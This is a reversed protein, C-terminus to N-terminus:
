PQGGAEHGPRDGAVEVEQADVQVRLGPLRVLRDLGEPPERDALRHHDLLRERQLARRPLQVPEDVPRLRVGGAPDTEVPAPRGRFQPPRLLEPVGDQHLPELQKLPPGGCGPLSRPTTPGFPTPGSTTGPRSPSWTSFSWARLGGAPWSARGGAS